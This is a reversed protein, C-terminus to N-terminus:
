SKLINKLKLLRMERKWKDYNLKKFLELREVKLVKIKKNNNWIWYSLLFIDFFWIYFALPFSQIIIYLTVILISLLLIGYYYYNFRKNFRIMSEKLDFETQIMAMKFDELINSM